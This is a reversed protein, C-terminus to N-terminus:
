EKPLLVTLSLGYVWELEVVDAISLWRLQSKEPVSPLIMADLCEDLFSPPNSWIRDFRTAKELDTGKWTYDDVEESILWDGKIDLQARSARLGARARVEAPVYPNGVEGGPLNAVLERYHLALGHHEEKRGTETAEGSRQLARITRSYRPDKTRGAAPIGLLDAVLLGRGRRIDGAGRKKSERTIWQQISLVPLAAGVAQLVARVLAEGALGIEPQKKPAVGYKRKAVPTNPPNPHMELPKFDPNIAITGKIRRGVVQVTVAKAARQAMSEAM